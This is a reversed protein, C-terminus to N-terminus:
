LIVNWPPDSAFRWQNPRIGTGGGQAGAGRSLQSRTWGPHPPVDVARGVCALVALTGRPQTGSQPLSKGGVRLGQPTEGTLRSGRAGM